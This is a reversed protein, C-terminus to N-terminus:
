FLNGQDYIQLTSQIYHLLAKKELSLGKPVLASIDSDRPLIVKFALLRAPASLHAEWLAQLFLDAVFSVARFPLLIMRISEPQFTQDQLSVCVHHGRCAPDPDRCFEETVLDAM